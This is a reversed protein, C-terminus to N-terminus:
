PRGRGPAGRDARRVGARGRTRARAAQSQIRRLASRAPRVRLEDGHLEMFVTDGKALGMSERFAAPVIIRGGEVIKGKVAPM